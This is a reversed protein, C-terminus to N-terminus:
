WADSDPDELIGRRWRNRDSFPDEEEDGSHTHEESKGSEGTLTTVETEFGEETDLGSDTTSNNEEVEIGPMTHDPYVQRSQQGRKPASYEEVEGSEKLATLRTKEEKIKKKISEIEKKHKPIDKTPVLNFKLWQELDQLELEFKKLRESKM